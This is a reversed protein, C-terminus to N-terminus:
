PPTPPACADDALGNCDNDLGDCIEVSPPAHPACTLKGNVCM